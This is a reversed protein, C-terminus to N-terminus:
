LICILSDVSDLLSMIVIYACTNSKCESCLIWGTVPTVSHCSHCAVLSSHCCIVFHPRMNSRMNVLCSLTHLPYGISINVHSFRGSVRMCDHHKLMLMPTLTWYASCDNVTSKVCTICYWYVWKYICDLSNFWAIWQWFVVCGGSVVLMWHPSSSNSWTLGM